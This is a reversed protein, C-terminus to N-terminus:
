YLLFAGLRVLARDPALHLPFPGIPVSVMKENLYEQVHLGTLRRFIRQYTADTRDIVGDPV